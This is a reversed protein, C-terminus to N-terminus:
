KRVPKGIELKVGSHHMNKVALLINRFGLDLGTEERSILKRTKVRQTNLIGLTRLYMWPVRDGLLYFLNEGAGDVLEGFYFGKMCKQCFRESYRRSEM